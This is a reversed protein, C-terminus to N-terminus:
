PCTSHRLTKYLEPLTHAVEKGVELASTLSFAASPMSCTKSPMGPSFGWIFYVSLPNTQKRSSTTIMVITMSIQPYKPNLQLASSLGLAKHMNPLHYTVSGCVRWGHWLSYTTM